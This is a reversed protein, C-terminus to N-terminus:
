KSKQLDENLSVLSGFYDQTPQIVSPKSTTRTSSKIRIPKATPEREDDDHKDHVNLISATQKQEHNRHGNSVSEGYKNVNQANSEIANSDVSVMSIRNINGNLIGGFRILKM